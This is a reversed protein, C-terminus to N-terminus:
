NFLRMTSSHLKMRPKIREPCACTGICRLQWSIMYRILMRVPDHFESTLQVNIRTNRFGSLMNQIRDHLNYAAIINIAYM